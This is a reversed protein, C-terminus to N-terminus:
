WRPKGAGPIDWYVLAIPTLRRTGGEALRDGAQLVELPIDVFGAPTWGHRLICAGASRLRQRCATRRVHGCGAIGGGSGSLVILAPWKRGDASPLYLAAVLGDDAVKIVERVVDPNARRRHRAAIRPLLGVSAVRSVRCRQRSRVARRIACRGQSEGDANGGGLDSDQTGRCVSKLRTELRETKIFGPNIANVRVGDKVGRDALAKTLLRCAANVSGGITFEANGTRGGIGIINVITGRSAM